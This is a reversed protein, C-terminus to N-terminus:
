RRLVRGPRVDMTANSGLIAVGNVLVMEIGKSQQTPDDYTAQDIITTPDFLVIDAYAGESILGRGSLDFKQAPLGTMRHVADEISLLGRERSYHGLVRPFTGWLRPHPFRDHPLGDSGIMTKPYSLIRDVDNQDMM